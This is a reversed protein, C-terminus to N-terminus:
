IIVQSSYIYRTLTLITKNKNSYNNKNYATNNNNAITERTIGERLLSKFPKPM